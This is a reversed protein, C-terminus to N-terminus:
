RKHVLETQLAINDSYVKAIYLGEAVRIRDFRITNEGRTPTYVDRYILKGALSFMKIVVDGSWGKDFTIGSPTIHPRISKKQM